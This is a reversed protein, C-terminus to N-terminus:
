IPKVHSGNSSNLDNFGWIGVYGHPGVPKPQDAQQVLKARGPDGNEAGSPNRSDRPTYRRPALHRPGVYVGRQGAREAVGADVTGGAVLQRQRNACVGHDVCIRVPVSM